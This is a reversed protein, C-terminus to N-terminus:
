AIVGVRRKNTPMGAQGNDEFWVPRVRTLAELGGDRFASVSRKLREDSAM